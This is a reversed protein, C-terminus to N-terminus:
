PMMEKEDAGPVEPVWSVRRIVYLELAPKADNLANPDDILGVKVIKNTGFFPGESWLTSGCDGCFYATMPRGSDGIRSVSKPSGEFVKLAEGPM